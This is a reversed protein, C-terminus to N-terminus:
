RDCGKNLWKHAIRPIFLLFDVALHLIFTGIYWGFIVFISQNDFLPLVGGTGFLESLSSVIINDTIVSFGANNIFDLFAPVSVSEIAGAQIFCFLLYALVPLFYLVYWFVTDATHTITKKRM